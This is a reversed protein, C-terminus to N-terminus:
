PMLHLAQIACVGRFTSDDVYIAVDRVLAADLVGESLGCLDKAADVPEDVDRPRRGRGVGPGLAAQVVDVDLAVLHAFLKNNNITARPRERMPKDRLDILGHDSFSSLSIDVPVSYFTLLSLSLSPTLTAMGDIKSAM